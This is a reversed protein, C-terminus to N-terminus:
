QRRITLISILISLEYLLFIPLGILVQSFIDPPTLISALILIIVFAHRRYQKLQKPSILNFKTLFYIILPLQFLFGSTLVLTTITKIFSIFHINNEISDSVTYSSLFNISFPVIVYYAFLVGMLFLIFSFFSFIISFLKERKYLAPAVFSWTEFVLYPFSIIIGSTLSVLLHMTFQGSMEVNMLIFPMDQICFKESLNCLFIYTPFTNEKCAFIIKDFIFTKNIFAIVSGILIAFMSRTLHWRLDTLHSIISQKPLSDM